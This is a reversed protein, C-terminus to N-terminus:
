KFTDEGSAIASSNITLRIKCDSTTTVQKGVSLKNIGVRNHAQVFFEITENPSLSGGPLIEVGWDNGTLQQRFSGYQSLM